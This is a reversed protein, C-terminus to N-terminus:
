KYNQMFLLWAKFYGMAIKKFYYAIEVHKYNFCYLTYALILEMSSVDTICINQFANMESYHITPLTYGLFLKREQSSEGNGIGLSLICSCFTAIRSTKILNKRLREFVLNQIYTNRLSFTKAKHTIPVSRNKKAVNEFERDIRRKM